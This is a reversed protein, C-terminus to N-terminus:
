ISSVPLSFGVRAGGQPSESVHLKGGHHHVIGAVISLGLGSGPMARDQSRRYFRDFVAEREAEPIGPGADNVFVGDPGVAVDIPADAPSYKDANSLLNTLARGIADADAVANTPTSDLSVARGTRDVFLAVTEEAVAVLNTPEMVSEKREDTALQIIETIVDNLEGVERRVSALTAIRTEEDIDPARELWDLNATVSTLPTRLEHAADQVLRRQQEESEQLVNLMRNFGRGLRGVEDSGATPVPQSFDQTEAVSDVVSTLARLPRTTRQAVIWGAAASLLAVFLAVAGLRARLDRLLGASADLSRAVQVAGGGKLHATIMRFEVDDISVTRLVTRGDRLALDVDVPDVPLLLETNSRVDGNPRLIQVEADPSVAVIVARGGRGRGDLRSEPRLRQGDSIESARERLFNDIDVSVQRDTTIYSAGGVLLATAAAVAAFILALRAGLGM